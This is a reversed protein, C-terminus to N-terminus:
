DSILQRFNEIIPYPLKERKPKQSSPQSITYLHKIGYKKASDLVEINDDVFLTKQPDYALLSQLKSWFQPDEKPLGLDHSSVIKDLCREMETHEMKLNLVKRHANTVLIRPKGLKEVYHLFDLVGDHIAILHRTEEKLNAIDLGLEQTWFDVCYWNLTGQHSKFVRELENRADTEDRGHIEAYRQPLHEQWFHDDYHLDLLTGDMDLFVDDIDQWDVL